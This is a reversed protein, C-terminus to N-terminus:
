IIKEQGHQIKEKKKRCSGGFCFAFSILTSVIDPSTFLEDQFSAPTMCVNQFRFGNSSTGEQGKSSTDLPLDRVHLGLPMSPNSNCM